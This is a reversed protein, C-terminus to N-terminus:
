IIFEVAGAAGNAIEYKSFVIVAKGNENIYFDTNENILNEFSINDWLAAKQEESWSEITNEISRSAIQKYDNGLWDKLTILRGSELDINYYFNEYYANFATEHQSIVFSVYNENSCKVSYDVTIKIPIFEDPSGGTAIFADYYEQAIEKNYEVCDNIKSQIELNIRKELESKGTNEIKPIAVDIYKIEDEFHYERLTVIRCLDGIVPVEYAAKAFTPSLNTLVATLVAAIAATKATKIGVTKFRSKRRRGESVARHVVFELEEPIKTNTYNSKDIM